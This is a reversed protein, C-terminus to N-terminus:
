EHFVAINKLQDRPTYMTTGHKSSCPAAHIAYDKGLDEVAQKRVDSIKLTKECYCVCRIEALNHLSEM